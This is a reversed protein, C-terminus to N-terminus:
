TNNLTTARIITISAILTASSEGLPTRDSTTFKSVKPNGFSNSGVTGADIALTRLIAKDAQAECPATRLKVVVSGHGWWSRLVGRGELNGLGLLKPGQIKHATTSDVPRARCVPEPGPRFLGCSATPDDRGEKPLTLGFLQWPRGWLFPSLARM